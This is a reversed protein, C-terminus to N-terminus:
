VSNSQLDAIITSLLCGAAALASPTPSPRTSLPKIAFFPSLDSRGLLSPYSGCLGDLTLFLRSLCCSLRRANAKLSELLFRRNRSTRCIRIESKPAQHGETSLLRQEISFLGAMPCHGHKPLKASRSRSPVLEWLNMVAQPNSESLPDM